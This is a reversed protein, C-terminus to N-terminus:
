MKVELADVRENGVASRAICLVLTCRNAKNSAQFYKEDNGM